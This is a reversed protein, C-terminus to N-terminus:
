FLKEKEEKPKMSNWIDRLAARAVGGPVCQIYQDVSPRREEPRNVSEAHVTAMFRELLLKYDQGNKPAGSAESLHHKVDQSVKQPSM